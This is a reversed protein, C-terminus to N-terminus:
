AIISQGLPSKDTDTRNARGQGRRDTQRDTERERVCVCVCVCHKQRVEEEEEEVLFISNAPGNHAAEADESNISSSVQNGDTQLCVRVYAHCSICVCM